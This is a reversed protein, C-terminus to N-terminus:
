TICTSNLMQSSLDALYTLAVYEASSICNETLAERTANNFRHRVQHAFSKAGYRYEQLEVGNLGVGKVIEISNEPARGWIIRRKLCYSCDCVGNNSFLGDLPLTLRLIHTQCHCALHYVATQDAMRTGPQYIFM